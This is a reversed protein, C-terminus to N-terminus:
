EHFMVYNPGFMAFAEASGETVNRALYSGILGYLGYLFRMRVWFLSLRWSGAKRVSSDFSHDSITGQWRGDSLNASVPYKIIETTPFELIHVFRENVM